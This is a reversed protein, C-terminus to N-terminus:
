VNNIKYKKICKKIKIKLNRCRIRLYQNNIRQKKINDFEDKISDWEVELREFSNPIIKYINYNFEGKICMNRKQLHIYLYEKKYVYGKNDFFRYLKSENM